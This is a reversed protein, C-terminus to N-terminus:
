FEDILGAAELADEFSKLVKVADQVAKIQTKDVLVVEPSIYGGGTVDYWFGDSSGQVPANKKFQWEIKKM